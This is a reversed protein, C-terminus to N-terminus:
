AQRQRKELLAEMRTMQKTFNDEMGQSLDKKIGAMTTQISTGLSLIEQQHSNLAHQMVGMTHETGALRDNTQQFWQTFQNNQGRLEQLGVELAQLRQEDPGTTLPSQAAAAKVAEM